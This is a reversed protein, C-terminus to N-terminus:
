FNARLEITGTHITNLLRSKRASYKVNVDLYNSIQKKLNINWTYNRGDQLGELLQYAIPSNQNGIFSNDIYNFSSSLIYKNSTHNLSLGFNNSLLEEKNLLQNSKDNLRYSINFVSKSDNFLYSIKSMFTNTNINMNRSSYRVNNNITNSIIGQIDFLWIKNIKHSLELKNLKIINEQIGTIYVLKNKSELYSYTISYHQKGRNFFLNNRLNYQLAISNDKDFPNFNFNTLRLHKNDISINTQNIFHSILKNNWKLKSPNLSLLSSIKSQNTRLFKTSPLLVRVYIAEDQFQAIEFEDLDKIGDNNYDNWTYYGKGSDVEMYNYEQQPITGSSTEYVSNIQIFDGILKQNYNIKSNISEDNDIFKNRLIRYNFYVDLNSAKNNLLDSKLYLNNSNSIKQLEANQVSDIINYSYGLKIKTKISDKVALFSGFKINKFSLNNIKETELDKIINDELDFNLGVLLKNFKHNIKSNLKVFNNNNIISKSQMLSANSIFKTEKLYYESKLSHRNGNFFNNFNLNEFQYNVFGKEDNSYNLDGVLLGQNAIYTKDINWDRNFDINKIREVSNFNNQIQEYAVSSSLKWKKDILLQNLKFKGAFGGNDDDDINSFLNKDLKSYAIESTIKTKDNDFNLNLSTVQLEKPAFLQIKPEYDGQNIGIFKYVRGIAINNEIIYDGKNNGVYTFKVSYLDEEPNNSFIFIENGNIIEKIYQVKNDTFSEAVASLTYMKDINDGSNFLVEKQTDNLNQQLSKSKSDKESYFDVGINIKDNKYNVKNFSVIRTYNQESAQFEIHIRMNSNIPYTSKFTIEASSNDLTYDNKNVPIGNIYVSESDSIILLNQNLTNSLRYPGQNAEQGIFDVEKFEGKVIAGSSYINILSKNKKLNVDLGIGAVKKNFSLYNTNSNSIFLDGGTLKWKDSYLEVFIRDYENLRQTYGNDQLPITNDTINANIHIKSSLNGELKLKLGSNVVGDQNNGMTIGRSLFGSPELGQFPKSKNSSETKLKYFQRNNDDLKDVILNEDSLKYTKTIFVPLPKYEVKITKNNFYTDKFEIISTGFDIIYKSKKIEVDDYLVKLYYPSISVNDIIVLKNKVIYKNIIINKQKIQSVGFLYYFLTIIFLIKKQM